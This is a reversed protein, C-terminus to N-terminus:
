QAESVEELGRNSRLSVTSARQDALVGSVVLEGAEDAPSEAAAPLIHRATINFYTRAPNTKNSKTMKRMEPRM